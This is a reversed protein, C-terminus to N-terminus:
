VIRLTGLEEKLREIPTAYSLYRYPCSNILHLFYDYKSKIHIDFHMHHNLQQQIDNMSGLVSKDSTKTYRYEVSKPLMKNLILESTSIERILLEQLKAEFLNEIEKREKLTGGPVFFSFLTLSNTFLIYKKRSLTIQNAYWNHLDKPEGLTDFTREKKFLDRVKKTCSFVM